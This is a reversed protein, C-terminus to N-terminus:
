EIISIIQLRKTTGLNMVKMSLGNRDSDFRAPIDFLGSWKIVAGNTPAVSFTVQGTEYNVTYGSTQLTSGFYVKLPLDVDARPRTIRRVHSNSGITYTKTLQFVTQTGDGTAFQEPVESAGPYGSTYGVYFDTWDRLRFGYVRGEVIKLFNKLFSLTASGDVTVDLGLVIQSESMLGLAQERGSASTIVLSSWAEDVEIDRAIVDPFTLGELVRSPM